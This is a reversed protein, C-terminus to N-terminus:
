IEKNWGYRTAFTEADARLRYEKCMKLVWGSSQRITDFKMEFVLVQYKPYEKTAPRIEVRTDM